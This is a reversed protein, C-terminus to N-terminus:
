ILNDTKGGFDAAMPRPFRRLRPLLDTVSARTAKSPTVTCRAKMNAPRPHPSAIAPSTNPPLCQFFDYAIYAIHAGSIKSTANILM